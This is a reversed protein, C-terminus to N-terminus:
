MKELLIGDGERVKKFELPGTLVKGIIEVSSAPRIEGKSSVPTPGFFICFCKGSPWYGIDGIEVVDQPKSLGSKVPIEFYIEDGWTNVSASIPLADWVLAAIASDNLQAAAEVNGAKIRIKKEM